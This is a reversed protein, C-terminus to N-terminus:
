SYTSIKLALKRKKRLVKNVWCGGDLLLAGLGVTGREFGFKVLAVVPHLAFVLGRFGTELFNKIEIVTHIM